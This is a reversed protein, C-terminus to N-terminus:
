SADSARSKKLASDLSETLQGISRIRNGDKPFCRLCKPHKFHFERALKKYNSGMNLKCKSVTEDLKCCHVIGSKTHKYFDMDHPVEETFRVTEARM